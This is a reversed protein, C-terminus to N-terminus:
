KVRSGIDCPDSPVVCDAMSCFPRSARDNRRCFPRACCTSFAITSHKRSMSDCSAPRRSRCAPSTARRSCSTRPSPPAPSQEFDCFIDDEVITPAFQEALNLMRHAVVPSLVAGTPNHIASNTIYLRLRHEALVAGFREVDPGNPTHARPLKGPSDRGGMTSQSHFSREM